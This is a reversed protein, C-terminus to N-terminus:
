RWRPDYGGYRRRILHPVLGPIEPDVQFILARDTFEAFYLDNGFDPGIRLTRTGAGGGFGIDIELIPEDLAYRPREKPDDSVVLVPVMGALRELLQLLKERDIEWRTDRLNSVWRDGERHLEFGPRSGGPFRITLRQIDERSVPLLPEVYFNYHMIMMHQVYNPDVRFKEYRGEGLQVYGMAVPPAGEQVYKLEFYLTREITEGGVRATVTLRCQPKEIIEKLAQAEAERTVYSLVRGRCIRDVFMEIRQLQRAHFKEGKGLQIGPPEEIIWNRITPPGPKRAETEPHPEGRLVLRGKGYRYIELRVVEELRFRFLRRPRFHEPFRMSDEPLQAHLERADCIAIEDSGVVHVPVTVRTTRCGRNEETEEKFAGFVLEKPRAEGQLFLRVKLSPPDLLAPAERVPRRDQIRLRTIGDLFDRIRMWEARDRYPEVLIWQLGGKVMRELAMRRLDSSGPSLPYDIEIRDALDPEFSFFTTTRWRVPSRVFEKYYPEFIQLIRDPRKPTTYYVYSRGDRVAPNVRGFRLEYTERDTRVVATAQPPDLGFKKLDRGEIPISDDPTLGALINLIGEVMLPEAPKKFPRIIEYGAEGGPKERRVIEVTEGSPRRIVLSLLRDSGKIDFVVPGEKARTGPNLVFLHLGLLVMLSVALALPTRFGPM